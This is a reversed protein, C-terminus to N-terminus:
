WAAVLGAGFCPCIGFMKPSPSIYIYIYTYVYTKLVNKQGMLDSSCTAKVGKPSNPYTAHYTMLIHPQLTSPPLDSQVTLTCTLSGTRAKWGIIVESSKEAPREFLPLMAVMVPGSFLMMPNIHFIFLAVCFYFHFYSWSTQINSSEVDVFATLWTVGM